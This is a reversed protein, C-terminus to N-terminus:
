PAEKREMHRILLAAEFLSGAVFNSEVGTNYDRMLLISKVGAEKAAGTDAATDGIMYSHELDIGWKKAADLIMGPKPKKCLCGDFRTHFCIFIDDLPLAEVHSQMWQWDERTVYGYAIDPQNTILIRLFGLNGLLEIAPKVM